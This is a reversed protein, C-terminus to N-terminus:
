DEPIVPKATGHVRKGRFITSPLMDGIQHVYAEMRTPFLMCRWDPVQGVPRTRSDEGNSPNGRADAYHKGIPEM